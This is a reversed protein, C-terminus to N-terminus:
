VLESTFCIVRHEDTKGSLSQTSMKYIVKKASSSDVLVASYETNEENLKECVTMVTLHM